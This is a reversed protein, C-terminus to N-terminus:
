KNGNEVEQIWRLGDELDVVDLKHLNDHLMDAVADIMDQETWGYKNASEYLLVTNDSAVLKRLLKYNKKVM